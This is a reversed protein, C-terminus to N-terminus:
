EMQDLPAAQKPKHRRLPHGLYRPEKPEKSPVSSSKLTKGTYCPRGNSRVVSLLHEKQITSTTDTNIPADEYCTLWAQLSHTTNLDAM